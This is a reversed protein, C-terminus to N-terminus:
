FDLSQPGPKVEVGRLPTTSVANYQTPIRSLEPSKASDMDVLCVRHTGVVAGPANGLTRVKYRGDSRTLGSSEPGVTGTEHDPYFVVRLNPLPKGDPGSVVGEVNVLTPGPERRCGVVALGLAVLLGVAARRRRAADTSPAM